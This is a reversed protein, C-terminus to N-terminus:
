SNDHRRKTYTEILSTLNNFKKFLNEENEKRKRVEEKHEKDMKEMALKLQHHTDRLWEVSKRQMMQGMIFMQYADGENQIKDGLSNWFSEQVSPSFKDSNVSSNNANSGITTSSGQQRCASNSKNQQPIHSKSTNQLGSTNSPGLSNQQPIHPNSTNHLGSTAQPELSNQQPLHPNSTNHLGSTAQPELSNQQPLHPNSTNHLGSTAQPELSNQQPLHPNSTNHLGSIAQPELSIQQPIHPNPTNHLGSTAQPELSNQQPFHPNSTNCLGSTNSPGLSNQQPVHPNSSTHIGSTAQPGFSNQQPIHPNSTNHLGSTAQPGFSNQQPIHPNSTNHLGSTAQPGLSNQQPFHPNSTNCLGSTNSPGLSNQQSIHPNSTNHLGSTAQPGFSNQQPIHPNSTNHLGSTAQPGLSNQQPIHPNSTNHLGSTAQPGLSNQQSIHPNSTNHLGSTNNPRLSNLQPIQLNSTNHLGATHTLKSTIQQSLNHQNIDSPLGSTNRYHQLTGSPRFTQETNENCQLGQMRETGLASNPFTVSVGPRFNNSTAEFENNLQLSGVYSVHRSVGQPEGHLCDESATLRSSTMAQFHGSSQNTMQGVTYACSHFNNATQAIEDCRNGLTKNPVASMSTPMLNNPLPQTPAIPDTPLSGQRTRDRGGSGHYMRSTPPRNVRIDPLSVQNAGPNDGLRDSHGQSRQGETVAKSIRHPSKQQSASQQIYQLTQAMKTISYGASSTPLQGIGTSPAVAKTADQQLPQGIIQTSCEILPHQDTQPARQINSLYEKLALSNSITQEIRKPSQPNNEQQASQASPSSQVIDSLPNIPLSTELSSTESFSSQEIERTVPSQRVEAGSASSPMTVPSVTVKETTYSVPQGTTFREQFSRYLSRELKFIIILLTRACKDSSSSESNCFEFTTRYLKEMDFQKYRVGGCLHDIFERPSLVDLCVRCEICRIMNKDNLFKSSFDGFSIFTSGDTFFKDHKLPIKMSSCRLLRLLEIGNSREALFMHQEETLKRSLLTANINTTNYLHSNTIVTDCESDATTKTPSVGVDAGCSPLIEKSNDAGHQPGLSTQTSKGGVSQSRVISPKSPQCKQLMLHDASSSRAVDAGCSPLIAKLNDSGHQPGLSTQTTKGGVSQSRVISPKSPPCKQLMLHDASSSRTIGAEHTQKVSRTTDTISTSNMECSDEVPELKIRAPFEATEFNSNKESVQSISENSSVADHVGSRNETEMEEEADSSQGRDCLGALAKTKQELQEVKSNGSSEHDPNTEEEHCSTIAKNVYPNMEMEGDSDITNDKDTNMENGQHSNMNKENEPDIMQEQDSNRTNEENSHQEPDVNKENDFNMINEKNANVAKEEDPSVPTMDDGESLVPTDKEEPLSGDEQMDEEQSDSIYPTAPMPTWPSEIDGGNYMILRIDDKDDSDGLQIDMMDVQSSECDDALLVNEDSDKEEQTKQNTSKENILKPVKFSEGENAKAADESKTDLSTNLDIVLRDGGDDESESANDLVGLSGRGDCLHLSVNQSSDCESNTALKSTNCAAAVDSGEDSLINDSKNFSPSTMCSSLSFSTCALGSEDMHQGSSNMSQDCENHRSVDKELADSSSMDSDLTSHSLVSSSVVKEAESDSTDCVPNDSVIASTNSHASVESSCVNELQTSSVEKDNCLKVKKSISKNLKDEMKRKSHHSKEQDSNSNTSSGKSHKSDPTRKLSLKSSKELPQDESTDTFLEFLNLRDRVPVSEKHSHVANSLVSEADAREVPNSKSLNTEDQKMDLQGNTLEKNSLKTLSVVPVVNLHSNSKHDSQNHTIKVDKGIEDKKNSGTKTKNKKEGTVEVLKSQEKEHSIGKKTTDHVKEKEASKRSEDKEKPNTFTKKHHIKTKLKHKDHSKISSKSLNEGTDVAVSSQDINEKGSNTKSVHNGEEKQNIKSTKENVCIRDESIPFLNSAEVSKGMFNNRSPSMSGSKRKHRKKHVLHPLSEDRESLDVSADHDVEYCTVGSNTKTTVVVDNKPTSQPVHGSSHRHKKKNLQTKQLSTESTQTKGAIAISHRRHKNKSSEKTGNVIVNKSGEADTKPIKPLVKKKVDFNSCSGFSPMSKGTSNDVSSFKNNNRVVNKLSSKTNVSSVSSSDGVATKQSPKPNVSSVSSSDSVVTKQSLKPNVFSVIDNNGVVTKQSSKPNLSLINNSDGVVTKLSTRSNVPSVSSGDSVVTKLVSNNDGVVTKLSTRPNESLVRNGDGVVTKLLTRPNESLVRNVDGVVTKLLTKPNESLVRKSDNVVTKLLTRPKESLVRNVDGVVTKRSSKPKNHFSSECKLLPKVSHQGRRNSKTNSASAKDVSVSKLMSACSTMNLPVAVGKFVAKENKKDESKEKPSLELTSTPKISLIKEKSMSREREASEITSHEISNPRSKFNRFTHQSKNWELKGSLKRDKTTERQRCHDWSRPRDRSSPSSRSGHSRSGDQYSCEEILRRKKEHHDSVIDCSRKGQMKRHGGRKWHGRGRDQKSEGRYGGRGRLVRWNGYGRSRDVGNRYNHRHDQDDSQSDRVHNYNFKVWSSEPFEFDLLPKSRERYLDETHYRQNYPDCDPSRNM